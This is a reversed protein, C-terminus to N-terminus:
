NQCKDCPRAEWSKIEPTHQLLQKLQKYTKQLQPYVRHQATCQLRPGFFIILISNCNQYIFPGTNKALISLAKWPGTVHTTCLFM